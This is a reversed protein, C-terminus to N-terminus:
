KAGRPKYTTMKVTSPVRVNVACSPCTTWLCQRLWRWLMDEVALEIISSPGAVKVRRRGRVLCRDSVFSSLSVYSSGEQLRRIVIKWPMYELLTCGPSVSLESFM